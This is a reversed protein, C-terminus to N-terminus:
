AVHDLLVPRLDELAAPALQTGAQGLQSVVLEQELGAEQVLDGRREAAVARFARAAFRRVAGAASLALVLM